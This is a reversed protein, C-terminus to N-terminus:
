SRRPSMHKLSQDFGALAFVVVDNEAFAIGVSYKWLTFSPVTFHTVEAGSPFSHVSFISVWPIEETAVRRREIAGRM